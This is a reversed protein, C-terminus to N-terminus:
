NTAFYSIDLGHCTSCSVSTQMDITCGLTAAACAFCVQGMHLLPLVYNHAGTNKNCFLVSMAKVTTQTDIFCHLLVFLTKGVCLFLSKVKTTLHM